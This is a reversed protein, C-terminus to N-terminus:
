EKDQKYLISHIKNLSRQMNARGVPNDTHFTIIPFDDKTYEGVFVAEELWNMFDYGTHDPDTDGLDHDLSIHTPNETATLFMMDKVNSVLTWSEPPTRVDDLYLKM